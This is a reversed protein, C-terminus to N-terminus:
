TEAEKTAEVTASGLIAAHVRLIRLIRTQVWIRHCFALLLCNKEVKQNPKALRFRTPQKHEIKQETDKNVSVNSCIDHVYVACLIHAEFHSNGFVAPTRKNVPDAHRSPKLRNM